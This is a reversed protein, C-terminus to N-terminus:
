RNYYQIYVFDNIYHDFLTDANKCYIFGYEVYFKIIGRSYDIIEVISLIVLYLLLSVLLIISARYLLGYPFANRRYFGERIGLGVLIAPWSFLNLRAFKNSPLLM